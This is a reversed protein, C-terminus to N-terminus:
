SGASSRATRAQDGRRHDRAGSHLSRSLLLAFQSAPARSETVVMAETMIMGVGGRAREAYYLKDRETSLGDTTSYNTGMPAMIVRNRVRLPGIRGPQMLLMYTRCGLRFFERGLGATM